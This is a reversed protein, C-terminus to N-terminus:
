DDFRGAYLSFVAGQPDQAAALQGGPIEIPEKMLASGGLDEVRQLAAQLDDTGFYVMWYCPETSAAKRIGGNTHGDSNEVTLYPTGMGEFTESTWGFLRCYFRASEEVDPTALENWTLAGPANVLGAGIHGRPEWVMVYAGQPDQLVGMRGADFVDFAGARVSAGLQRADKLADDASQVTIYSNWMPPLGADRQQSPQPSLAAVYSGNLSAMTYVVGESVPNDQFEWGFLGGYFRKAAAQDTTPLEAWSFTGPTYQTRQAM